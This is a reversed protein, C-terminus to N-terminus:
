TPGTAGERALLVVLREEDGELELLRDGPVGLGRPRGAVQVAEEGQRPSELVRDEEDVELRLLVEEPRVEGGLVRAAQRVLV